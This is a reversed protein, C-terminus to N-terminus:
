KLKFIAGVPSPIIMLPPSRKKAKISPIIKNLSYGSPFVNNPEANINIVVVVISKCLNFFRAMNNAVLWAFFLLERSLNLDVEPDVEQNYMYIYKFFIYVITCNNM